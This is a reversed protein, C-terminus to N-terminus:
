TGHGDTGSKARPQDGEVARKPSTNGGNWRHRRQFGLGHAGREYHYRTRDNGWLRGHPLNRATRFLMVPRSGLGEPRMWCLARLRGNLRVPSRVFGRRGSQRRIAADRPDADWSHQFTPRGQIQIARWVIAKLHSGNPFHTLGPAIMRCGSSTRGPRRHPRKLLEAILSKGSVPQGAHPNTRGGVGLTERRADRRAQPRQLRNSIRAGRWLNTGIHVRRNM